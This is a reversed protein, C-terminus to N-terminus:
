YTENHTEGRKCNDLITSSLKKRGSASLIQELLSWCVMQRSFVLSDRQTTNSELRPSHPQLSNSKSGPTRISWKPLHRYRDEAEDLSTCGPGADRVSQKHSLALSGYDCLGVITWWVPAVETALTAALSAAAAFGRLDGGNSTWGFTRSARAM